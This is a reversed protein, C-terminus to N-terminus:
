IRFFSLYKFFTNKGSFIIKKEEQYKM